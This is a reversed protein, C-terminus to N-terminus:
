KDTVPFHKKEVAVTSLFEISLSLLYMIDVVELVPTDTDESVMVVVKFM